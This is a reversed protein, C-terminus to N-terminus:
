KESFCKTGHNPYKWRGLKERCFEETCLEESEDSKDPCNSIGNCVVVFPLYQTHNLCNWGHGHENPQQCYVNNVVVLMFVLTFISFRSSM